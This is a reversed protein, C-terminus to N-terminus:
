EFLDPHLIKALTELGDVMRPGPRSVLNDDFPYVQNNVVASLSEWGGRAAVAEPTVGGWVADGLLIIAPDQNLLEEISIQAWAGELVNGVNTGGAMSLLLDIFTGPGSTWPANPDTGDLEYFVLPKDELGNTKEVVAAVRGELEQVLAEAEADHGTLQAVIRLNEYLGPLDAPNALYYVTLGLDELTQIQETANIEAALVLDPAQALLTETDLEGWGGGIDTVALAAEPYDSFADRAIVQEGAGIAFLIETNSPALSAVRQAPGALTIQRGLGDTLTIPPPSTPEPETTPSPLPTESPAPPETPKETPQKVAPAETQPASTAAPTATPQCGALAFSAILALIFFAKIPKATYM